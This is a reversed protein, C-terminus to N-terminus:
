NKRQRLKQATEIKAAPLMLSFFNKPVSPYNARFRLDFTSFILDLAVGMGDDIRTRFMRATIVKSNGKKRVSVM